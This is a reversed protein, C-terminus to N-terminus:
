TCVDNHCTHCYLAAAALAVLSPVFVFLDNHLSLLVVELLSDQSLLQLRLIMCISLHCCYGSTAIVAINVAAVVTLWLIHKSQAANLVSLLVIYRSNFCLLVVNLGCNRVCM